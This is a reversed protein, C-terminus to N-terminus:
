LVLFVISREFCATEFAKSNRYIHRGKFVSNQGQKKKKGRGTGGRNKEADRGWRRRVEAREKREKGGDEGKGRAKRRKNGKAEGMKGKEKARENGGRKRRGKEEERKGEHEGNGM